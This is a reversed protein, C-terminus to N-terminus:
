KSISIEAGLVVPTRIGPRIEGSPLMVLGDWSVATTTVPGESPIEGARNWTKSITNYVMIGRNFGPHNTLASDKRKILIRKEDGEAKEIAINLKETENFILGKDGGFLIISNRGAAIGTGASLGVPKGDMLIDSETTWNGTNLAYKWVKTQFESIKGTKNRGGIVYICPGTGDDQAVVVAHSVAVPLDPLRKWGGETIKMDLCFFNVSGGNLDLGGAMFIKSGICAAGGSSTATPLDPLKNINIHGASYSFLFVDKLPGSANEGGIGVVGDPTQVSAAYALRLPLKVASVEWTFAERSSRKLLYIDDHYEKIGGTWPLSNKFNAGGAVMLYNGLSGTIPGALGPQASDGPKPPIPPIQKWNFNITEM